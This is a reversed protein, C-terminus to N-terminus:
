LILNMYGWDWIIDEFSNELYEEIDAESYGTMRTLVCITERINEYDLSDEDICWKLFLMQKLVAYYIGIWQAKMVMSYLDGEPMYLTSFIEEAFVLRLKNQLKGWVDEFEERKHLFEDTFEDEEYKTAIEALPELFDAYISKKRYNDAVDLFLENQEYINDSSDVRLKLIQNNLENLFGRQMYSNVFNETLFDINGEEEYKDFMDLLMYFMMRISDDLSYKGESIFEMMVNRLFFLKMEEEVDTDIDGLISFHEKKWLLDVVAPCGLALTKEITGEYEHEERPFTHCTDSITKEGYELVIDCLGKDNFFPCYGNSCLAMEEGSEGIRVYKDLTTGKAKPDREVYKEPVVKSYWDQLTNEDVAIKWQQCCTFPCDGAICNFEDYYEPRIM